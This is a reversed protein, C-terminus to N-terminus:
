VNSWHAGSHHELARVGGGMLTRLVMPVTFRGRSRNRYRAAHTM